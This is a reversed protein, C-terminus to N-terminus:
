RSKKLIRLEVDKVPELAKRIEYAPTNGTHYAYLVKPKIMKAAKALEEPTMTYPLNCPLFAIDIDKLNAMEPVAETDGGIYVRFDGMTLVYGNGVGKPHFPEGPNRERKINYAPVAEIKIGDVERTDGNAMVTADTLKKAAEASAVFRTGEKTVLKLAGPDLHDGHHHTILVLDAKPLNSYDGRSFPDVHIVYV